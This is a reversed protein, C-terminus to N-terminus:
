LSIVIVSINPVENVFPPVILLLPKSVILASKVFLPVIILSVSTSTVNMILGPEVIVFLPLISILPIKVLLPIIVM